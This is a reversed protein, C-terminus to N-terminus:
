WGVVNRQLGSLRCEARGEEEGSPRLKAPLPSRVELRLLCERAAVQVNLMSQDEEMTKVSKVSTM